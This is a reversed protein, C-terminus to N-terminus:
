YVLMFLEQMEDHIQVEVRLLAQRYDQVLKAYSQVGIKGERDQRFKELENVDSKYKDEQEATSDVTTEDQSQFDTKDSRNSTSDTESSSQTKENDVIDTNKNGSEESETDRNGSENGDIERNMKDEDIKSAYELIGAGDVGTTLQLRNQPTDGELKRNFQNENQTTDTNHTENETKDTSHTEDKDSLYDREQESDTKSNQTTDVNGIQESETNGVGHTNSKQDINRLDQQEKENEKRHVVAMKSNTLPDYKFLESEFLKNYYGMNKRLWNRLRMKFLEETEFGIERMYFENIFNTEFEKRYNESFFPYDFDFLKERGIEIKEDLTLNDEFQSFKEIYTRLMMTYTAM